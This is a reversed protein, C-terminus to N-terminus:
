KKKFQEFWETPIPSGDIDDEMRLVWQALDYQYKRFLDMVEEESYKNKDQEAQWQSFLQLIEISATQANTSAIIRQIDKPKVEKFTYQKPEEYLGLEEDDRMMEILIKKQKEKFSKLSEDFEEINENIFEVHQESIEELIHNDLIQAVISTKYGLIVDKPEEKHSKIEKITPEEMNVNNFRFKPNESPIIIKYGYKTQFQGNHKSLDVELEVWECSPNKVFWELFDDDITQVGDKILSKNDTLIIKQCYQIWCGNDDTTIISEKVVSKAKYINTIGHSSHIFWDGEKIEENSTIYLHFGTGDTRVKDMISFHLNDGLKWIGTPKDTPLVHINKM